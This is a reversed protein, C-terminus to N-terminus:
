LSYSSVHSFFAQALNALCPLQGEIALDPVDVERRPDTTQAETDAISSEFYSVDFPALRSVRSFGNAQGEFQRCKPLVVKVFSVDTFVPRGEPSIM